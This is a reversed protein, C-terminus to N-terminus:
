GSKARSMRAVSAATRAFAPTAIFIPLSGLLISVFAANVSGALDWAVGSVLSTLM